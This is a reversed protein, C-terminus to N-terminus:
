KNEESDEAPTEECDTDVQVSICETRLFRNLPSEDTIKTCDMHMHPTTRKPGDHEFMMQNLESIIQKSTEMAWKAVPYRMFNMVAISSSSASMVHGSPSCTPIKPLWKLDADGIHPRLRKIWNDMDDEIQANLYDPQDHVLTDRIRYILKLQDYTKTERFPKGCIRFYHEFLPLNGVKTEKLFVKVNEAMQNSPELALLSQTLVSWLESACSIVIVACAQRSMEMFISQSLSHQVPHTGKAVRVHSYAFRSYDAPHQAVDLLVTNIYEFSIFAYAM